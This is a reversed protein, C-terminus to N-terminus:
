LRRVLAAEAPAGFRYGGSMPNRASGIIRAAITRHASIRGSM